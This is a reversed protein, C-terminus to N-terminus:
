GGICWCTAEGDTADAAAAPAGEQKVWSWSYHVPRTGPNTVAVAARKMTDMLICGFDVATADFVLNSYEVVGTLDLWDRQPTDPYSILCRQKATHSLLDSRYCPDFAVSVRGAEGAALSLAAPEISFPTAARLTFQLPLKSVNRHVRALCVPHSRQQRGPPTTSSCPQLDVDYSSLMARVCRIDLPQVVVAPKSGRSHIYSFALAQQSLQLLPTAVEATLVLDFVPKPKASGAAAAASGSSVAYCELQETVADADSV